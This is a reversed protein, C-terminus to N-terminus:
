ATLYQGHLEYFPSFSRLRFCQQFNKYTKREWPSDFWPVPSLTQHILGKGVIFRQIGRKM